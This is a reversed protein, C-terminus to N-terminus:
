GVAWYGSLSNNAGSALKLHIPLGRPDRNFEVAIKYRDCLEVIKKECAEQKVEEEETLGIDCSILYYASLRNGYLYLDDVFLAIHYPNEGSGSSRIEATLRCATEICDKRNMM